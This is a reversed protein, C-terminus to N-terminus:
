PKPPIPEPAQPNHLDRQAELDAKFAKRAAAERSLKFEPGPAFYHIDDNGIGSWPPPLTQPEPEAFFRTALTIGVAMLPPAVLVVMMLSRLSYKM